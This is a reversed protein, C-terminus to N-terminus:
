NENLNITYEIQTLPNQTQYITKDGINQYNLDFLEIKLSNSVVFEDPLNFSIHHVLEGNELLEDQKLMKCKNLLDNTPTVINSMDIAQSKYGFNKEYFNNYNIIYEIASDLSIQGNFRDGLCYEDNYVRLIYGVHNLDNENEFKLNFNM